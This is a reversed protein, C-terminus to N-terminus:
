SSKEKLHEALFDALNIESKYKYRPINRKDIDFKLYLYNSDEDVDDVLTAIEEIVDARGQQYSDFDFNCTM